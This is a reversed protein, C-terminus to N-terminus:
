VRTRARAHRGADPGPVRSPEGARVGPNGQAYGEPRASGFNRYARQKLDRGKQHGVLAITRGRFRGLGAVIAPDEAGMRDGHLETFDDLLREAYDLTYPREDHRALEVADWIDSEAARELHAPAARPARLSRRERPPGTRRRRGTRVGAFAVCSAHSGARRSPAGAAGRRPVRVRRRRVAAADARAHRAARAAPRDHRDPRLPLEVRRPRLRRAAARADDAARGAPGRVVHARGARRHDRRRAGRVLGDRRRHTPHSLVSIFPIGAENLADVACTTKAMQMLALVNEQMRAGGSSAVSILPMSDELALDVARAFKEGVVSGMSGGVFEFEMTALACRHGDIEARGVVMADDLGTAATPPPSVSPTRADPRRVRAPRGLAPRERGGRVHGPRRAARHARAGGRRLPLRLHPVRAARRAARRRSLALQLSSLHQQLAHTRTVSASRGGGARARGRRHDSVARRYEHAGRSGVAGGPKPDSRGQERSSRTSSWTSSTSRACRM